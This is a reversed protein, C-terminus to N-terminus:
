RDPPACMGTALAAIGYIVFPASMWLYGIDGQWAVVAFVLGILLGGAGLAVSATRSLAPGREIEQRHMNVSGVLRQTFSTRRVLEVQRGSDWTGLGSFGTQFVVFGVALCVRGFLAETAVVGLLLIGLAGIGLGVTMILHSLIGSGNYVRLSGVALLAAVLAAIAYLM